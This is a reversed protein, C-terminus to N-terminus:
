YGDVTVLLETLNTPLTLKTILHLQYIITSISTARHNLFFLSFSELRTTLYVVSGQFIQKGLWEQNLAKIKPLYAVCKWDDKYTLKCSKRPFYCKDPMIQVPSATKFRVDTCFYQM